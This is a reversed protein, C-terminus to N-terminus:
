LTTRQIRASLSVPLQRAPRRMRRPQPLALISLPAHRDRVSKRHLRGPLFVFLLRGQQRVNCRQCMDMTSGTVYDELGRDSWQRPRPRPRSAGGRPCFTFDQDQDYDQPSSLRPRSVLLLLNEDQGPRPADRSCCFSLRPRSRSILRPRSVFLLTLWHLYQNTELRGSSLFFYLIPIPGSLFTKTKINM